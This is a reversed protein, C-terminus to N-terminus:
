VGLKSSGSVRSGSAWSRTATRATRGRNVWGSLTYRPGALHEPIGMLTTDPTSHYLDAAQRRTEETYRKRVMHHIM